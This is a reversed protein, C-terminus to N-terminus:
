HEYQQYAKLLRQHISKALSKPSIVQVHEGLGMLWSEFDYNINIEAKIHVGDDLQIVQQDITLPTECIIEGAYSRFIAEFKIKNKSYAYGTSGSSVYDALNFYSPYKFTEQSNSCSIFRNLALLRYEQLHQYEVVLYQIHSRVVIGLPKITVQSVEGSKKQYGGVLLQEKLLGEYITHKIEDNIPAAILPQGRLELHVKNVWTKLNATSKLENLTQEARNFLRSLYPSIINPLLPSAVKKIIVFCLADAPSMHSFVHLADEDLSWKYGDPSDTFRTIGYGSLNELDRQITRITVTEGTGGELLPKLQNVSKWKPYTPLLNILFFHRVNFKLSM